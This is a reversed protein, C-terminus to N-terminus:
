IYQLNFFCVFFVLEYLGQISLFKIVHSWQFYWPIIRYVILNMYFVYVIM